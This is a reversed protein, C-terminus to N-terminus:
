ATPKAVSDAVASRATEVEEPELLAPIKVAGDARFASVTASSLHVPSRGTM